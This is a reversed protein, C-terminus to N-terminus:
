VNGHKRRRRGFIMVLWTKAIIELDLPISWNRLYALDLDSMERLSLRDRGTVQWAGTLGPRVVYRRRERPELRIHDSLYLPRPGVLSMDGVLVNWLQPVEDIGHVRLWRGFKGVDPAHGSEENEDRTAGQAVPATRLRWIGITRDGGLGPRWSRVFPTGGRAWIIVALLGIPILMVILGLLAGTVDFVRKSILARDGLWLPEIKALVASQGVVLEGVGAQIQALNPLFEVRTGWIHCRDALDQREEATLTKDIIIVRGVDEGLIVNKLDELTGLYRAGDIVAPTDSVYGLIRTPRSLDRIAPLADVIAAPAGLLVTRTQLGHRKVWGYSLRDYAWRLTCCLLSAVAGTIFIVWFRPLQIDWSAVAAAGVAIVLAMSFVISAIRARRADQRYLKGVIGFIVLVVGVGFGAIKEVDDWAGARSGGWFQHKTEIAVLLGGAVSALDILALVAFRAISRVTTRRYIWDFVRGTIAVAAEPVISPVSWPEAAVTPETTWIRSGVSDPPRAEVYAADIEGETESKDLELGETAAQARQDEDGIESVRAYAASAINDVGHDRAGRALELLGSASGDSTGDAGPATFLETYILGWLAAPISVDDGDLDAIVVDDAIFGGNAAAVFGGLGHVKATAYALGAKFDRETLSPDYLGFAARLYSKPAPLTVGARRWDGVACAIAWAAVHGNERAQRFRDRRPTAACLARPLMSLEMPSLWAFKENADDLERGHLECDVWVEVALHRIHRLELSIEPGLEELEQLQRTRISAFVWADPNRAMWEKLLEATVSRSAIAGPLNRIILVIGGPGSPWPEPDALFAHLDSERGTGDRHPILIERFQEAARSFFEAVLRSRGAVDPGTLLAFGKSRLALELKAESSRSVYQPIEAHALAPAAERVGFDLVLDADLGFGIFALRRRRTKVQDRRTKRDVIVYIVLWAVLGGIGGGPWGFITGLSSVSAALGVFWKILATTTNVNAVARDVARQVWESKEGVGEGEAVAAPLGNVAAATL